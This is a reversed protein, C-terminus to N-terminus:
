PAGGKAKAIEARAKAVYRKPVGARKEAEFALTELAGLLDPAALRLRMDNSYWVALQDHEDDCVEIDNIPCDCAEYYHLILSDPDEDALRCAIELAQAATDAVIKRKGWQLDSRFYVDYTTM